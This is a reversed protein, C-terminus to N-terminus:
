LEPATTLITICHSAVSELVSLSASPVTQPLVYTIELGPSSSYHTRHFSLLVLFQWTPVQYSMMMFSFQGHAEM